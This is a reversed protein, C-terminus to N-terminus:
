NPINDIIEILNKRSLLIYANRRYHDIRLEIQRGIILYIYILPVTSTKIINETSPLDIKHKIYSGENISKNM